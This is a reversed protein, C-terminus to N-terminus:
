NKYITDYVFSFVFRKLTESRETQFDHSPCDTGVRRDGFDYTLTRGIHEIRLDHGEALGCTM